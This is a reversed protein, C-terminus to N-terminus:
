GILNKRQWIWDVGKISLIKTSNIDEENVKTPHYRVEGKEQSPVM